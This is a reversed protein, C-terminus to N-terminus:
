VIVDGTVSATLTALLVILLMVVVTLLFAYVFKFVWGGARTKEPYFYEIFSTFANNWAMGAILCMTTIMIEPYKKFLSKKMIELFTM